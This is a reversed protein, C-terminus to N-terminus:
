SARTENILRDLNISSSGNPATAEEALKKWEMAKGKMKKGKEGEMLERVLKEVEDRKVNNNIEMGVGWETCSYRCNMHQESSFPWCLMPVGASLTEITSGWGCHTLFGGVSPHNLVEEQPCWTTIYSREQTEAAFEPPLSVSEGVVLDPRIIWLFSCKSNALGTAFETLKEPTMLALSGFNVYVVSNPEKSDLWQLCVTEEKWLNYGISKMSDEEVQILHLQLPGIAYVRPYITSFGDLVDREKLPILGKEKTALLPVRLEEAATITFPMFPDSVICSVPPVKSSATNHLKALLNQFPKIMYERTSKLLSRTDRADDDSPPLGDPITEFHFTPLGDLSNPGRSKLFRKHNFETNVFTIHFAKCHLLKALKLMTKIHGQYPTIFRDLNISSSGNPATAEEALKKWEMAKAKMKKGKEGEMLERVLNEVNSDIEMGVGWETCSYRCNMQQDAFFPWCLMPVGASLSEITSGWGSHTLFGGVAPHNLVEEQPCWTTIYSRDKTEAAFEPPLIASDVVVLDPRIIWLFTCKSNALGMAFETLQETTMVTISGFNVYVVSNPEKSDLWQLCVSEEKWLNYGISKLSDEEVQNLHLQLPGIAYVRPYITSLGDLVDRELADFTHFAIASAKTTSEASYMTFNLVTENPDTTRVFSPLDKLRIGEMGPIWDIVTDLYGNTLYSEDKLPIYGKEKLASLQKSGMSGCAGMTSFIVVPIGLEEGATITFPMFTDSVICSVPPVKSSATNNLKALLERFPKIMYDKTSNCLSPIDQTADDNSPPLGDTITEFHFTPLGDLSNPGRSNLFRKHNFETNVFTIHFGKHHLLKALKLVTKIHGQLPAPVLVLHPKDATTKPEMVPIGLEEAATITFPVFPDSVICSIPPVKSSATNNLKALLEQFPKLMYDKVSKALASVDQTANVDSPPLGDPITEFHFTPLGDLSNPGRSKLFRKHNFETNVFTIHFGKCHLLKALKLITKIHGQYPAPVLVLHPKEAETKPEMESILRELNISSSGNPAAAEEALRKWEMAKEKMKKGKEGEMLERVLNEVEDRKVNSDFEMGVGWETCSYRCNMQQDAFFPWCLMPVGASLSEITSGWGCHTLFGAVSPHNLVEEQPCWSAIYSREQTEAAFEPPLIATDGVVLDPRIIWLFSCKSNALGMAFETLQEQTMVAISGFNVYVVTNPEKSDLWQLCVTEEKWLNYGISKMSDEEVQNLHLQLPGIAYFRPYITSFGDLVDRELADFTHFAIASAKTTSEASYMMFNLVTENPDTTRIFSPLDKLRIGKMGPIWDIVTDLYGNTLYSEDKLPTYGKEKLATLQKSGMSGCAAMTSFIVVPIGLEEAATITFPMYTDSVICSVPPVKSSATNNLRALLERFPYIMYDLKAKCLSPIDQTADINSPPLGDPITEFHFTPLGDLSNPGRSRLFRRHNFETNVFTIHFGKYHLLKALQLITKIHGQGPAPVLVLHPRDAATENILKDLNISSSGNPATAEEALRKWEMAKEKMKKGKEGEMLERVLNELENRKVNSDIEMGVGWETCSYRCNMQQDAFFPWCLMPVGASLSEITSGWGCHTLFGGVSPHNLVEEQPCWSAIYSRDQTETAFEPPLIATDGIVLDPRIIWLFPHKSNALGMAFETLQEPTMVAISGFNVYVVSNPEKSDLWELCATEEKWLNYGISKLSDEEVRNLHLQLPGIAYVHPYITSFGDLVDPELADFTHFAVASAKTSREATYLSFNLMIDNPDTTRLFTPLDKLRIGKMGPIWDIVTDLYGNTAYSEDKLPIFGNEKLASLQKTGMFGCAAFTAFMAVPVGLEEAAKITFPMYVDSVICSVPPVNSSMVTNNLEM